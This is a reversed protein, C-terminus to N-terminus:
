WRMTVGVKSIFTMPEWKYGWRKRTYSWQFNNICINSTKCWDNEKIMITLIHNKHVIKGFLCVKIWKFFFNSTVDMKSCNLFMKSFKKSVEIWIDIWISTFLILAEIMCEGVKTNLMKVWWRVCRLHDIYNFTFMTMYNFCSKCKKMMCWHWKM